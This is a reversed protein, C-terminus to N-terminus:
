HARRDGETSRARWRRSSGLKRSGPSRPRPEDPDGSARSRPEFPSHRARLTSSSTSCLTIAITQRGTSRTAACALRRARVPEQDVLAAPCGVLVLLPRGIQKALLQEFWVSLPRLSRASLGLAERLRASGPRFTVTGPEAKVYSSHLKVDSQHAPTLHSWHKTWLEEVRCNSTWPPVLIFNLIRM